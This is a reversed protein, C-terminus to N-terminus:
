LLIAKYLMDSTDKNDKTLPAILEWMTLLEKDKIDRDAISSITIM